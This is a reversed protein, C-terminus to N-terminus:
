GEEHKVAARQDRLDAGAEPTYEPLEVDEQLTYPDSTWKVIYYGDADEDETSFAGYQNAKVTEAMMEMVGELLQAHAEEEEKPDSVKKPGIDIIKWDNIGPQGELVFIKWRVCGTSSAYRPQEEAAVGPKWPEDM